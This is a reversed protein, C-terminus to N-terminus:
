GPGDDGELLGLFADELRESGAAALLEGLSGAARVAGEDLVVVHTALQQIEALLHSSILVAVGTGALAAVHERLARVEGPDLGNAPEDLILVEPAGMLAQALTLRQRMGTSYSKVRRDVATGLGALALASELAPPPWERRGAQWLLRLNRMGSLHPVFAPGDIVTGVRGLTDAALVSPAGLLRAHGRDSRSLGLLLRMTTTKGAGNRGVLACIEGGSVTFSVDQVGRRRGYHKTLGDAVVAPAGHSTRM